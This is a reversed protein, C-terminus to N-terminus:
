VCHINYKCPCPATNCAVSQSSFQSDCPIGDSDPPPSKCERTRTKMGGNVNYFVFGLREMRELRWESNLTVVCQLFVTLLIIKHNNTRAKYHNYITIIIQYKSFSM